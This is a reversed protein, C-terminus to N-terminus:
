YLGELPIIDSEDDTDPEQSLLYQEISGRVPKRRFTLLQFHIQGLHALEELYQYHTIVNKVFTKPKVRVPGHHRNFLLYGKEDKVLAYANDTPMNIIIMHDPDALLQEIDRQLYNSLYYIFQRPTFTQSYYSLLDTSLIEFVGFMFPSFQSLDYQNDYLPRPEFKVGDKYLAKFQKYWSKLTHKFNAQM